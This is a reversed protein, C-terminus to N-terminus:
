ATTSAERGGPARESGGAAGGGRLAGPHHLDRAGHRRADGLDGRHGPDPTGGRGRGPRDLAARLGPHLRVVDDPDPAPAPARGGPGGGDAAQGREFGDKAFEVILIANKAALGILMVLGIQGYVDLAFGRAFLGLFAGVVAVPVSLLVSFPLSWSEYLAALILFVFGLSLAFVIGARGAAKREQYSLDAWDYGM